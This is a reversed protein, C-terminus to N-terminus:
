GNGFDAIWLDSFKVNFAKCLRMAIHPDVTERGQEIKQYMSYSMNKKTITTVFDAMDRQNFGHTERKQKLLETAKVRTEM